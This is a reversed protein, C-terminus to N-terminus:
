SLTGPWPVSFLPTPLGCPTQYMCVDGFYDNEGFVFPSIGVFKEPLEKTNTKGTPRMAMLTGPLATKLDNMRKMGSGKRVVVTTAPRVPTPSQPVVSKGETTALRAASRTNGVHLLGQDVNKLMVVPRLPARGNVATPLASRVFGIVIIVVTGTMVVSMGVTTIPAVSSLVTLLVAFPKRPLCVDHDAAAVRVTRGRLDKGDLQKAARDADERSQYELISYEIDTVQGYSM